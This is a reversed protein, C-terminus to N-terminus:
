FQDYEDMGSGTGIDDEGGEREDGSPYGGSFSPPRDRRVGGDGAGGMGAGTGNQNQRALRYAKYQSESMPSGDPNTPLPHSIACEQGQESKDRLIYLERHRTLADLRAFKKGCGECEFPRLGEHLAMHRKCDHQRAFGVISKPCGDYLCKYPREDNHSRMHGKLNFHRTFTSGCGPVPCQFVGKNTRRSSSAVETAVSTVKMKQVSPKGKRYSSEPIQAGEPMEMRGSHHSFSSGQSSISLAPSTSRQSSASSHRSHSRARSPPLLSGDNATISQLFDSTSGGAGVGWGSGKGLDESKVSRRHGLPSARGAARAGSYNAIPVAGTFEVGYGPTGAGAAPHTTGEAFSRRRPGIGGSHGQDVSLFSQQAPAATAPWGQPQAMHSFSTQYFPASATGGLQGADTPNVGLQQYFALSTPSFQGPEYKVAGSQSATNLAPLRDRQAQLQNYQQSMLLQQIMEQQSTDHGPLTRPDLTAQQPRNDSILATRWSDIQNRWDGGQEPMPFQQINEGGAGMAMAQLFAVRDFSEHGMAGMQSDSKARPRSGLSPRLTDFQNYGNNLWQNSMEQMAAAFDPQSPQNVQQQGQELPNTSSPRSLPHSAPPPVNAGFGDPQQQGQQPQQQQAQQGARRLAAEFVGRSDKLGSIPTSPQIYIQPGDASPAIPSIGAMGTLHELAPNIPPALGGATSTNIIPQTPHSPGASTTVIPPLSPAPSHQQNPIVLAPPSRPKNMFPSASGARPFSGNVAPSFPSGSRSSTHSDHRQHGYSAQAMPHPSAEMQLYEMQTHTDSQPFPSQARSTHHSAPSSTNSYIRELENIHQEFGEDNNGTHWGGQEEMGTYEGQSPQQDLFEGSWGASVGPTMSGTSPYPSSSPHNYLSTHASSATHPINLATQYDNPIQSLDAYQMMQEDSPNWAQPQFQQQQQQQPLPSFVTQPPAPSYATPPHPSQAFMIEGIPTGSPMGPSPTKPAGRPATAIITSSSEPDFPITYKRLDDQSLMGAQAPDASSGARGREGARLSANSGKRHIAQPEETMPSDTALPGAYTGDYGTNATDFPQFSNSSSSRRQAQQNRFLQDFSPPTSATM